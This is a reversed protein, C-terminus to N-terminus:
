SLDTLSILATDYVVFMMDFICVKFHNFITNSRSDKHECDSVNLTEHNNYKARILPTQIIDLNTGTVTVPTHGSYSLSFILLLTLSLESQKSLHSHLKGSPTINLGPCTWLRSTCFKSAASKKNDVQTVKVGLCASETRKPPRFHWCQQM